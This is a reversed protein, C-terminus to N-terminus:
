FSKSIEQLRDMIVRAVIQGSYHDEIYQKGRLSRRECEERDAFVIRMQQIAVELDPEAWSQGEGM